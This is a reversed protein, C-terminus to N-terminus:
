SESSLSDIMAQIEDQCKGVFNWHDKGYIQKEAEKIPELKKILKDLYPKVIEYETISDKEYYINLLNRELVERREYLERKAM